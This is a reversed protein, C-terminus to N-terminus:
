TDLTVGVVVRQIKRTRNYCRVEELHRHKQYDRMFIGKQRGSPHCSPWFYSTLIIEIIQMRFEERWLMMVSAM